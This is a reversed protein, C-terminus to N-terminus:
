PALASHKLAALLSEFEAQKARAPVTGPECYPELLDEADKAAASVVPLGFTHASGALTHLQRRLDAIRAPKEAGGALAQWLSEIQGVKEPLASRYDARLVALYKRFEETAM